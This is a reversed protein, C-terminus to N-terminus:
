ATIHDHLSATMLDSCCVTIHGHLWVALHGHLRARFGVANCGLLLGDDEEFALYFLM